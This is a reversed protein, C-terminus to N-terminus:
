ELAEQKLEPINLDSAKNTNKDDSKVAETPMEEATKDNDILPVSSGPHLKLFIYNNFVNLM